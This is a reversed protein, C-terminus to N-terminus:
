QDHDVFYGKHDVFYGKHDTSKNDSKTSIHIRTDPISTNTKPELHKCSETVPLKAVVMGHYYSCSDGYKCTGKGHYFICPKKPHFFKCANGNRCRDHQYFYCTKRTVSANKPRSFMTRTSM